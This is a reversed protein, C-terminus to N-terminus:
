CQDKKRIVRDKERSLDFVYEMRKFEKFRGMGALIRVM